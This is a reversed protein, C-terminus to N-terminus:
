LKITSIESKRVQKWTLFTKKKYSFGLKKLIRASHWISIGFRSGIVDLKSDPNNKVFLEVELYNVKSKRGLRPKASYNGEKKYRVCWRSITNRHVGFIESTEKQTKGQGLYSIVKKRLDNSYPSTSM